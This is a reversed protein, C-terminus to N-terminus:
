EGMWEEDIWRDDDNQEDVMLRAMLRNRWRHVLWRENNDKWAFNFNLSLVSIETEITTPNPIELSAHLFNCFCFCDDWFWLLLM